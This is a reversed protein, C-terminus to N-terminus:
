KKWYNSGIIAKSYYPNVWAWQALSLWSPHWLKRPLLQRWQGLHQIFRPTRVLNSVETTSVSFDTVPGPWDRPQNKRTGRGRYHMYKAICALLSPICGSYRVHGKASIPNNMREAEPRKTSPNKAIAILWKVPKALIAQNTALRLDPDPLTRQHHFTHAQVLGARPGKETLWTCKSWCIYSRETLWTCKSWCIYSCTDSLQM